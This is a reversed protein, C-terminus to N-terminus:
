LDLGILLGVWHWENFTTGDFQTFIINAFDNLNRNRINLLTQVQILKFIWLPM